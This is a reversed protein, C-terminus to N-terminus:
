SQVSKKSSRLRRRANEWGFQHEMYYDSFTPRSGKEIRCWQEFAGTITAFYGLTDGKPQQSRVTVWASDSSVSSDKLILLGAVVASSRNIGALCHVVVFGKGKLNEKATHVLDSFRELQKRLESQGGKEKTSLESVDQDKLITADVVDIGYHKHLRRAAFKGMWYINSVNHFESRWQKLADQTVPLPPDPTTSRKAAM